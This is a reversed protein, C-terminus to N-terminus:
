SKIIKKRQMAMTLHNLLLNDSKFKVKLKKNILYENDKKSKKESCQKIEM